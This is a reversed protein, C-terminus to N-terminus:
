LFHLGHIQLWFLILPFLLAPLLNGIKIINTDLVFNMGIAAIMLGGVAKIDTLLVGRLVSALGSALLSLSGEYLLTVPAAAIVGWGAVSTLIVATTGDLVAKTALIPFKGTLGNQLSGLISMAGINFILTASIFGKAFGTTGVRSEAWQGFHQIKEDLHLWTGVGLGLELSLLTNIADPLPWAMKFGMLIVVIGIVRLAQRRFDTTFRKGGSLGILSGLVIGLANILAGDVYQM